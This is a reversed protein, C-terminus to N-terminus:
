LKAKQKAKGLYKKKFNNYNKHSFLLSGQSTIFTIDFDDFIEKATQTSAEKRAREIYQKFYTTQANVGMMEKKTEDRIFQALDEIQKGEFGYKYKSDWDVGVGEQIKIFDDLAKKVEKTPKMNEVEEM